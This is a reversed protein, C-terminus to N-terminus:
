ELLPRFEEKVAPRLRHQMILRACTNWRLLPDDNAEPRLGEAQEYWEMAQRLEEYVTSDSGPAGRHLTAKGQREFFLGTYYAREYDSELLGILDRIESTTRSANPDRFLDTLALILTVIAKQNGADVALVDRCISVAERPENLMRYREAKRLASDVSAKTIAKLQFRIEEDTM